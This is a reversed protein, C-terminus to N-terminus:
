DPGHPQHRPDNADVLLHALWNHPFVVTVVNVELISPLKTKIRVNRSAVATGAAAARHALCGKRCVACGAHDLTGLVKYCYKGLVEVSHYGILKQAGLNWLVIQQKGDVVVVAEPTNALFSFARSLQFDKRVQHVAVECVSHTFSDWGQRTKVRRSVEPGTTAAIWRVRHQDSMRFM